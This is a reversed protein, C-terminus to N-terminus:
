TFREEVEGQNNRQLVCDRGPLEALDLVQVHWYSRESMYLPDLHLCALQCLVLGEHHPVNKDKKQEPAIVM